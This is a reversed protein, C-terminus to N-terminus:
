HSADYSDMFIHINEVGNNQLTELVCQRISEQNSYRERCDILANQYIRESARQTELTNNINVRPVFLQYALIALVILLMTIAVISKLTKGNKNKLVVAPTLNAEKKAIAKLWENRKLPPLGARNVVRRAEEFNGNRVLDKVAKLNDRAYTEM